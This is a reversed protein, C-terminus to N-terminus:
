RQWGAALRPLTATLREAQADPTGCPDGQNRQDICVASTDQTGELCRVNSARGDPIPRQRTVYV